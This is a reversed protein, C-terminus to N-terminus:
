HTSLISLIRILVWISTTYETDHRQRPVLKVVFTCAVRPPYIGLTSLLHLSYALPVHQIVSFSFM